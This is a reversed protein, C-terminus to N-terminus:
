AILFNWEDVNGESKMIMLLLVWLRLISLGTSKGGKGEHKVQGGVIIGGGGAVM